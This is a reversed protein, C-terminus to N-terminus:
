FKLDTQFLILDVKAAPSLTVCNKPNQTIKKIKQSRISRKGTHIDGLPQGFVHLQILNSHTQGARHKPQAKELLM